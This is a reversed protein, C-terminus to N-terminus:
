ESTSIQRLFKAYFNPTSFQQDHCQGRPMDDLFQGWCDWRQLDEAAPAAENVERRLLGLRV